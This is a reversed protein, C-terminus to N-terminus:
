AIDFVSVTSNLCARQWALAVGARGYSDPATFGADGASACHCDFRDVTGAIDSYTVHRVATFHGLGAYVKCLAGDTAGVCPTYWILADARWYSRVSLAVTAVCLLLSFGAAANLIFRHFRKMGPMNYSPQLRPLHLKTKVSGGGRPRKRM